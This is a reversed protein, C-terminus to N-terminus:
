AINGVDSNFINMHLYESVGSDPINYSSWLFPVCVFRYCNLIFSTICSTELLVSLLHYYGEKRTVLGMSYFRQQGTLTKLSWLILYRSMSCSM